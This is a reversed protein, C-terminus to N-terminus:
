LPNRHGVEEDFNRSSVLDSRWETSYSYTTERRVKDGEDYEKVDSHEVWQYMEVKRLLKVCKIQLNYM